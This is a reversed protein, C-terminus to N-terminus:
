SGVAIAGAVSFTGTIASINFRFYDDTIAGAVRTLWTGGTTTLPGITAVTTPSTFGANNDSQVIVTITTASTFVHFSSYLFQTAGVAGLQCGTGTAGTSSVSGKAKALQGRVLGQKHTGMAALTFPAVQGVDGFMEVNFKGVQTLYATTAETGTPSVTVVRDATGLDPFMEADVAGSAAQWYGEWSADVDRLGAIRTRYTSGFTTTDLDEAQAKLSVKHTDATVDYGHVYSTCGTLALVAM